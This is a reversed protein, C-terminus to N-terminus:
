DARLLRLRAKAAFRFAGGLLKEFTEFWHHSDHPGASANPYYPVSFLPATRWLAETSPSVAIRVMSAGRTPGRQGVNHRASSTPGFTRWRSLPGRPAEQAVDNGEAKRM